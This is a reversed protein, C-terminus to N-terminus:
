GRDEDVGASGGVEDAGFEGMGMMEGEDGDGRRAAGYGDVTAGHLEDSLLESALEADGIVFFVDRKTYCVDAPVGDNEAGRPQVLM